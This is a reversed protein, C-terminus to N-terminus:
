FDDIGPIKFAGYAAMWQRFLEGSAQNCYARHGAEGPGKVWRTLTIPGEDPLRGYSADWEVAVFQSYRPDKRLIGAAQEILAKQNPGLAAGDFWVVTWGEALNGVLAEVPPRNAATYYGAENIQAAQALRPGSSPPITLYKNKKGAEVIADEKPTPDSTPKSCGAIQPNVGIDQLAEYTKDGKGPVASDSGGDDRKLFFITGAVAVLVVPLGIFLLKELLAKRDEQKVAEAIRENNEKRSPANPDKPRKAM